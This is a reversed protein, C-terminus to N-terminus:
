SFDYVAPLSVLNATSKGEWIPVGVRINCVCKKNLNFCYYLVRSLPGNEFEVDTIFATEFHSPEQYCM